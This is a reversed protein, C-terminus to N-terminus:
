QRPEHGPVLMQGDDHILGTSHCSENSEFICHLAHQSPVNDAFM